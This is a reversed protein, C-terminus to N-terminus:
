QLTSVGTGGELRGDSGRKVSTIKVVKDKQMTAILERSLKMNESVLDGLAKLAETFGSDLMKIVQPAVETEVKQAQDESRCKQDFEMKSREMGNKESMMEKNLEHEKVMMDRKLNFDDLAKARALSSDRDQLDRKLAYEADLQQKKLAARGAEAQADAQLKQQETTTDLKLAQNEQQLKQAAEGTTKLQEQMQQMAQQIKPSPPSEEKMMKILKDKNSLPSAEIVAIPPMQFGSKVMEGLVQFDEIQATLVDPVDSLVIDVDLEAVDNHTDVVEKMMPDQQIKQQIQALIEPPAGAEQAQQLLMEGRTIPKNLGVWRLNHEDDTVRIWKEEKWYQKVRNWVKRFVRLQWYKLVDFIPGIETQGAQQRARLAVGSQVTKDKGQTAANAGVNDIEMKAETLLNFQAAAMDGTKLVEFEMGPTTEIVGDPKALEQRVKNVDDVAGKELRIQRVSMLHLAKSRRKNLEDQVDLLQLMAGYRGGERDVFASAFEYPWETEGEENKYPSIKPKECYGGRTFCAYWVDGDKKYYLEVIKVRKRTTDMWRPKDDYTQSGDQMVELVDKAEPYMELAEDYDMWVVQGLYRCSRRNFDKTRCHPDYVLRDWMIHNITVRFGDDRPEVIVEGGGTGEILINEWVASRIQDFANDQLVFRISETAAEAGKEHKPTRPFAKATTKAAKEMGMLSDMKPKCRNIVTAAQKQAKLKSVEEATWQKSDYYDRAKESLTRSTQTADDSDNVYKILTSHEDDTQAEKPPIDKKKAKAM